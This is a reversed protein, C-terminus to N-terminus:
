MSLSRLYHVAALLMLVPSYGIFSGTCGVTEDERNGCDDYINCKVEDSVCYNYRDCDFTGDTCNKNPDKIFVESVLLSYSLSRILLHSDRHYEFVASSGLNYQDAPKEKRCYGNTGLLNGNTRSTLKVYEQCEGGTIASGIVTGVNDQKYNHFSAVLINGSDPTLTISCDKRQVLSNQIVVSHKVTYSESCYNDMSIIKSFMLGHSSLVNLLLLFLALYKPQAM